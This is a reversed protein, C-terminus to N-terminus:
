KVIYNAWGNKNTNDLAEVGTSEKEISFIIFLPLFPLLTSIKAYKGKEQALSLINHISREHYEGSFEKGALKRGIQYFLNETPGSIILKGGPKLLCMLQELTNVLDHVHELVDLATIIDFSSPPYENLNDDAVIINAPFDIYQGILHYPQLNIDHGVVSKSHRALLSLLIGSGCGFDLVQQYPGNQAITKMVVHLRQWFLWDILPNSHAYAPFAAESLLGPYTNSLVIKIAQKFTRKHEQFERRSFPSAVM